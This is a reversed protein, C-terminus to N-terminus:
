AISAHLDYPGRSLERPVRSLMLTVAEGTLKYTGHLDTIALERQYGMNFIDIHHASHLEIRLIVM